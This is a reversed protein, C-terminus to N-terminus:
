GNWSISPVRHTIRCPHLRRLTLVAKNFWCLISFSFPNFNKGLSWMDIELGYSLGLVVEPSRYFRSQIYTYVEQGVECSSGFDIVTVKSEEGYSRGGSTNLLINEPKLDCHIVRKDALLSLSFLLQRTMHRIVNMPLGRFSLHRLLDYLNHSLLPTVIILHSRFHQHGTLPLLGHRRDPDWEGLKRLIGVEVVAQQHFRKKNRVIKVACLSGDAHDICRAVTGFSGRGLVGCIEWRYALHDGDVIKYDGREDDYGFNGASDGLDPKVKEASALGTFYVTPYDLIEAREFINLSGSPIYSHSVGAAALVQSPVLKPSACARSYLEELQNNAKVFAPVKTMLRRLSEDALRSEALSLELASTTRSSSSSKNPLVHRSVHLIGSSRKAPANIKAQADKPIATSVDVLSTSGSSDSKRLSAAHDHLFNGVSSRRRTSKTVDSAIGTAPSSSERVGSWMASAPLKPPPMETHKSTDKDFSEKSVSLQRTRSLSRKWGLNNLKARIGSPPAPMDPEQESSSVTYTNLQGDAKSSKRLLKRAEFDVSGKPLSYSVYPSMRQKSAKGNLSTPLPPVHAPIPSSDAGGLRITEHSTNSRTPGERDEARTRDFAARSATMPTSPTKAIRRRPTSPAPSHEQQDVEQSPRSHFVTKGGGGLPQLNLPPLMISRMSRKHLRGTNAKKDVDGDGGFTLGRRHNRTEEKPKPTENKVSAYSLHSLEEVPPGDRDADLNLHKDPSFCDFFSSQHACADGPSEYAKPIAPVPPVIEPRDNGLSSHVNRLLDKDLGLSSSTRVPLKSPFSQGTRSYARMSGDSPKKSISPTLVFADSPTVTASRPTATSKPLLSPSSSRSVSRLLWDPHMGSQPSPPAPPLPPVNHLSLRKLRRADTPSITRAGLGSYKDSHGSQRKSSSSSGPTAPRRLPKGPSQFGTSPSSGQPFSTLTPQSQKSTVHVSKTKNSRAAATIGPGDTASGGDRLGKSRLQASVNESNSIQRNTEHGGPMSTATGVPTKPAKTALTAATYAAPPAVIQSSQRRARFSSSIPAAVPPMSATAAASAPSINLAKSQRGKTAQQRLTSARRGLTDGTRPGGTHTSNGSRNAARHEDPTQFTYLGPGYNGLSGISKHFDDFNVSPLFDFNSTRGNM